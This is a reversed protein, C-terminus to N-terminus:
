AESVIPPPAFEEGPSEASSAVAEAIKEADDSLPVKSTEEEKVAAAEHESEEPSLRSIVLTRLDQDQEATLADLGLLLKSLRVLKKRKFFEDHQRALCHRVTDADAYGKEIALRGYIRDAKRVVYYRIGRELGRVQENTLFGLDVCAAEISLSKKQKRAERQAERVRALKAADLLGKEQAIKVFIEAQSEM